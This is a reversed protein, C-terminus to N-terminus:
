AAMFHLFQDFFFGLDRPGPGAEAQAQVGIVPREALRLGQISGDVLSRHTVELGAPLGDALVRYAQRQSSIGVRGDAVSQVPHNLGHRETPVPELRADLALAILQMGLGIGFIARDSELLAKVCALAEQAERPDGPGGAVVVGASARALIEGASTGPPLIDLRCGRAALQRLVEYKVGLDLVAVQPGEGTITAFGQDLQWGGQRWPQVITRAPMPAPVAAHAERALAVAKEADEGVWICAGQSGHERLHRALRRTDVGSIAVMGAAQLAEPLTQTARYNSMRRPCDRIVLGAAQLCGSEMDEPNVGTSGIHPYTFAIIRDRSAPDSLIEQHGSMATNFVARGTCHGGAGISIGRFVSGDALALIAVPCATSETFSFSPLVSFGRIYISRLIIAQAGANVQFM